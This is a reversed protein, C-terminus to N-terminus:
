AAKREVTMSGNLKTVNGWNDLFTEWNSYPVKQFPYADHSVQLYRGVDGVTLMYQQGQTFGLNAQSGLFTAIVKM